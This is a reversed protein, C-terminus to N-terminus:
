VYVYCFKGATTSMLDKMIVPGSNAYGINVVTDLTTNPSAPQNMFTGTGSIANQRMELDLSQWIWWVRDIMGHHHWFGPEGPSGDADRGPDGGMSYHGGGHVGLAGSGPVGQLETQFDWVNDNNLILHVISTYNNFRKIDLESPTWLGNGSISTDSGDFLESREMDDADAGWDWYPYDGHYDCEDRLASEFEYIFWRHWGLFTGTRHILLTQNIHTAVFDDYRTKAGAALDSPTRAPLKQLCLVSNIYAKKEINSFARWDRRIHLNELTCNGSSGIASKTVNLAFQALQDLQSSAIATNYSVSLPLTPHGLILDLWFLFVFIRTIM